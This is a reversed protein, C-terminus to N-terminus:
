SLRGWAGAHQAAWLNPNDGHASLYRSLAAKSYFTQGGWNVGSPAPAPAPAPPPSYAGIGPVLGANNPGTPGTPYIPQPAPAPAPAPPAPAAVPSQAQPATQPTLFDGANYGALAEALTTGPRTGSIDTLQPGDPTPTYAGGVPTPIPFPLGTPGPTEYSAAADAAANVPPPLNPNSTTAPSGDYGGGGGPPVVGGGTDGTDGPDDYTPGQMSALRDAIAQLNRRHEADATSLLNGYDGVGSRLANLLENLQGYSQSDYSEQLLDNGATLAGSRLTGRAALQYGLKDRGRDFAQQLQARGTLPNALAASFVAPDIDNIYSALDAPTKGRIDYGSQLIANQIQNLLQTRSTGLASQYAEENGQYLPDSTLELKYGSAPIKALSTDVGGNSSPVTPAGSLPVGSIPVYGPSGPSQYGPRDAAPGMGPPTAAAPVKKKKTLSAIQAANFGGPVYAPVNSLAM